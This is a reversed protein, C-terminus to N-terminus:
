VATQILLLQQPPCLDYVDKILGWFVFLIIVDDLALTSLASSVSQLLSLLPHDNDVSVFCSLVLSWFVNYKYPLSM